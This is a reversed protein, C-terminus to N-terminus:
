FKSFEKFFKDLQERKVKFNQRERVEDFDTNNISIICKQYDYTLKYVPVDKNLLTGKPYKDYMDDKDLVCSTFILCIIIIYINNNKLLKRMLGLSKQKATQMGFVSNILM